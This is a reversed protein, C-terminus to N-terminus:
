KQLFRKRVRTAAASDDVSFGRLSQFALVTQADAVAELALVLRDTLSRVPPIPLPVAATEAAIVEEKPM